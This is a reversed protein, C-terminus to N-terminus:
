ISCPSSTGGATPTMPEILINSMADDEMGATNSLASMELNAKWQYTDETMIDSAPLSVASALKMGSQSALLRFRGPTIALRERFVTCLREPSQLGCARAIEWLSWDTERLLLQAQRVRIRRLEEAPGHGITQHFHQELLRRSVALARALDPIRVQKSLNEKLWELSAVVLPDNWATLETSRRAAISPSPIRIHRSPSPEAGQLLQGLCEAARVGIERAPVVVTSLPPRTVTNVIEYDGMGLVAIDQPVRLGLRRCAQLVRRAPIDDAAFVGCPRQLSQLWESLRERQQQRRGRWSLQTTHLTVSAGRVGAIYQFNRALEKSTRKYTGLFALHAFGKELFHEAALHATQSFDPTVSGWTPDEIEGAVVVTPKCSMLLMEAFRKDTTDVIMGDAHEGTLLDETGIDGWSESLLEWEARIPHSNVGELIRRGYSTSLNILLAVRHVARTMMVLSKQDESRRGKGNEAAHSDFQAFPHGTIWAATGSDAM